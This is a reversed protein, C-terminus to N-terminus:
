SFWQVVLSNSLNFTSATCFAAANRYWAQYIRTAGAPIAGRVSLDPDGPAPWAAVGASSTVVGLRIVTGAACRLGDGFVQIGGTPLATGQFLLCSTTPPLRTAEFRFTDASVSPVGRSDLTAGGTGFSNNCGGTGVSPNNCPCLSASGSCGLADFDRRLVTISASEGANAGMAVYLFEGTRDFDFGGGRVHPVYPAISADDQVIGTALNVESIVGTEEFLVYPHNTLPDFAVDVARSNTGVIPVSQLVLGTAPDIRRLTSGGGLATGTVIWLDGDLDYDAGMAGVGTGYDDLLAGAQTVRGGENENISSLVVLSANFIGNAIALGEAGQDLGPIALPEFSSLVAGSTPSIEFVRGHTSGDSVWLGGFLGQFSVDGFSQFQAASVDITAHPQLRLEQARLPGAVLIPLVPLLVLSPLNRMAHAARSSTRPRGEIQGVVRRTKRASASEGAVPGM